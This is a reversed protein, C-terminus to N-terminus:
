QWEQKWTFTDTNIKIHEITHEEQTRGNFRVPKKKTQKKWFHAGRTNVETIITTNNTKGKKHVLNIFM